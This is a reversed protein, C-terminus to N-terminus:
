HNNAIEQEEEKIGCMINLVIYGVYLILTVIAHIISIPKFIWIYIIWMVVIVSAIIRYKLYDKM